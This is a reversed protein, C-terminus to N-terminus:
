ADDGGETQIASGTEPDVPAMNVPMYRVDGGAGISTMGMRRRIENHSAIGWQVLSANQKTRAEADARLIKEVDFEFRYRGFETPRLLWRNLTAEWREVVPMLTDTLYALNEQEVNNYTAKERVSLKSLPVRFIRAIEEVSLGKQEVFQADVPRLTIPAFKMGEVLVATKGANKSGGYMGSWERRIIEAGERSLAGPHELVGSPAGQNEAISATFDQQALAVGVATKAASIVSQGVLGGGSPMDRWHIVYESPVRAVGQGPTQDYLGTSIQYFIAGDESRLMSVKGPHIPYLAVVSGADDLEKLAYANGYLLRGFEIYEQFEYATSYQNPRQILDTYPSGVVPGIVDGDPAYEILNIPLKAIDSSIARVCALVAPAGIASSPTVVQGASGPFISEWGAGYIDSANVSKQAGRATASEASAKQRQKKGGGRKKGM